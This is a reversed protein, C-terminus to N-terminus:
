TVRLCITQRLRSGAKMGNGTISALKAIRSSKASSQKKAVLFFGRENLLVPILLKRGDRVASGSEVVPHWVILKEKLWVSQYMRRVSSFLRVLLCLCIEKFFSLAQLFEM